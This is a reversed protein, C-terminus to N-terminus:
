NPTPLPAGSNAAYGACQNSWKVVQTVSKCTTGDPASASCDDMLKTEVEASVTCTSDGPLCNTGNVSTNVTTVNRCIGDVLTGGSPCSPTSKPGHLCVWHEEDPIGSPGVYGAARYIVGVVKITPRADNLAEHCWYEAEAPTNISFPAPPLRYIDDMGWMSPNIHYAPREYVACYSDSIGTLVVSTYSLSSIPKSGGYIACEADSSKNATYSYMTRLSTNVHQSCAFQGITSSMTCSNLTYPTTDSSSVACTQDITSGATNKIASQNSFIIDSNTITNNYNFNSIGAGYSGSCDSAIASTIGTNTIIEGQKSNTPLCKNTLFNTAACAQDKYPDAGPVHTQCATVAQTGLATLGVSKANALYSGNNTPTSFAGMSPPPATPTDIQGTWAAQSAPTKNAGIPNVVQSPSTPALTKAFNQGDVVVSSDVSYASTSIATFIVFTVIHSRINIM